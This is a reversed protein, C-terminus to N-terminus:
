YPRILNYGEILEYKKFFNKAKVTFARNHEEPTRVLFSKSAIKVREMNNIVISPQNNNFWNDKTWRHNAIKYNAIKGHILIASAFVRHPYTNFNSHNERKMNMLIFEVGRFPM